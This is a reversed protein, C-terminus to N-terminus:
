AVRAPTLGSQSVLQRLTVIEDKLQQLQDVLTATQTRTEAAVFSNTLADSPINAVGALANQVNNFDTVYAAGSGNIERSHSLFDDAAGPLNGISTPDGTYAKGATDLLQVGSLYYQSTPSLPSSGSINLKKAYNLIGAIGQAAAATAQAMRQAAAAAQQEAQQEAQKATAAEQQASADGYQKQIALREEALTKEELTIQDAYAQTSKFADGFTNVLSDSFQKRESDANLDFAYLAATQADGSSGTVAAHATLYRANLGKDTAAVQANVADSTAQIARDRAATLDNEATTLQAVQDASVGLSTKLAAIPGIVANYQAAVAAQQDVFTGTITAVKTLAPATQTLLPVIAAQATEYQQVVNALDQVTNFSQAGLYDHFENTSGPAANFRYKSFASVGTKNPTYLDEFKSPDSQKATMGFQTFSTQGGVTLGNQQLYEDIQNLQKEVYQNQDYINVGQSNSGTIRLLGSDDVGVNTSTYPTAAKPGILGGGSGGILGGILGGIVTGVGPFIVTGAIAGGVAGVGAGIQPAPGVKGLGKQILGGALSGAAYGAGIGGAFDGVTGAGLIETGLLSNVTTPAAAAQGTGLSGAVASESLLGSPATAAAIQGASAGAISPAGSGGWLAIDGLSGISIPSGGTFAGYVSKGASFINQLQGLSGMLGGGGAASGGGGTLSSLASFLTPRSSSGSVANIVPNVLALQALGTAITGLVSKMINGFNIAKGSGSLFANSISQALNDFAQTGLNALANISDQRHQLEQTADAIAGANAVLAAKEAEDLGPMTKQIEQREKLMALDRARLDASEGLTSIEAQLYDLETRQELGSQAAKQASQAATQKDYAATLKAVSATYADTGVAALKRAEEEAKVLNTTHSVADYGNAYAATVATIGATQRNLSETLADAPTKADQLAIQAKQLAQQLKVVSESSTDGNARLEALAASYLKVDEAAKQAGGITTGAGDARKLADSVTTANTVGGNGSVDIAVPATGISSVDVGAVNKVFDRTEKPVDALSKTGALFKDVNAPGWNYAMAVLAPDGGYKNWLKGIQTLGGAINQTPDSSDVGLDAATADKLQFTGKAGKSSTLVGGLPGFQRGGSEQFALRQGFAIQESSLGLRGGISGIQAATDGMVKSPDAGAPIVGQRRIEELTKAADDSGLLKRITSTAGAVASIAAALGNNINEGIQQSFTKGNNDPDSFANGLDQLAKQLPTLADKAAGDTHSKIGDLIVGFAGAKDGANAMHIVTDALVQNFGFLHKDALEQVAKAPDSMAAALNKAEEPLTVGLIVAANQAVTVLNQLQATTGSFGPQSAFAVAAARADPTSAGSTAAVARAADSAQDALAKYGDRTGRLTTQLANLARDEREASAAMLALTGVIGAGALGFAVMPTILGAVARALGGVGTGTSLMVDGVQHGQQILTTLVPQGTAIGSIMQSFQVGLQRTAFATQGHSAGLADSADTAAKTSAAAQQTPQGLAAMADKLAQVRATAKELIANGAERKSADAAVEAAVTAEARALDTQAKTLQAALNLAPVAKRAMTDFSAGAKTTSAEARDAADAYKTLAAAASNAGDAINGRFEASLIFDAM